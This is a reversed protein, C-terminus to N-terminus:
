MMIYQIGSLPHTSSSSALVTNRFYVADKQVGFFTAYEALLLSSSSIFNIEELLHWVVNVLKM